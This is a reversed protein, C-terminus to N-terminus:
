ASLRRASALRFGDVDAHGHVAPVCGRGCGGPRVGYGHAYERLVPPFLCASGHADVRDTPGNEGGHVPDAGGGHENLNLVSKNYTIVKEGLGMQKTDRLGAQQIFAMRCPFKYSSNVSEKCLKLPNNFVKQYSLPM